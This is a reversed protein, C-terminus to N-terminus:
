VRKERRWTPSPCVSVAASSTALNVGKSELKQRCFLLFLGEKFVRWENGRRSRALLLARGRKGGGLVERPFLISMCSQAKWRRRRCRAAAKPCGLSSCHLFEGLLLPFGRQRLGTQALQSPSAGAATRSDRRRPHPSCGRGAGHSVPWAMGLPLAPTQKIM